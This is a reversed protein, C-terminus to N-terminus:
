GGAKDDERDADEATELHFRHLTRHALPALLVSVSTLFVVGSFIAYVSAFWKAGATTLLDVPGMGALIMSANLLADLWHQGAFVHYGVVGIGLSSLILAGAYLGHFLLRRRFVEPSALPQFRDEFM